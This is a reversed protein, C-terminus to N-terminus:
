VSVLQDVSTMNCMFAQMFYDDGYSFKLVKICHFLSSEFCQSGFFYAEFM